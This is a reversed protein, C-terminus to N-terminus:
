RSGKPPAFRTIGGDGAMRYGYCHAVPRDRQNRLHMATSIYLGYSVILARGEDKLARLTETALENLARGRRATPAFLAGDEYWELTDLLDMPGSLMFDWVQQKREQLEPGIGARPDCTTDTGVMYQATQDTPMDGATIVVEFKPLM